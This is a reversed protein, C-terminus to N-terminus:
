WCELKDIERTKLEEVIMVKKLMKQWMMSEMKGLLV